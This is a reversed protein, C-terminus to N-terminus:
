AAGSSRRGCIVRSAIALLEFLFAFGSAIAANASAGSQKEFAAALEKTWKELRISRGIGVIVQGPAVTPPPSGRDPEEVVIPFGTPAPSPIKASYFWLGAATAASLLALGTFIKELM